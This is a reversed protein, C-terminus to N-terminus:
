VALGSDFVKPSINNLRMERLIQAALFVAEIEDDTRDWTLLFDDLYMSKFDRDSLRDIMTEITKM